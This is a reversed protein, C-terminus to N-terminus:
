PEPCVSEGEPGDVGHECIHVQPAKAVEVNGHVLDRPRGDGRKAVEELLHRAPDGTQLQLPRAQRLMCDVPQASGDHM